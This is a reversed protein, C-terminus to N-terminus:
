NKKNKDRKNKKKTTYKVTTTTTTPYYSTTSYGVTTYPETTTDMKYPDETTPPPPQTPYSGGGNQAEQEQKLCVNEMRDLDAMLHDMRKQWAGLKPCDSLSDDALSATTFKECVGKLRELQDQNAMSGYKGKGGFEEVEQQLANFEEDVSFLDDGAQRRKRYPYGGGGTNKECKGTDLHHKADLLVKEIRHNYKSIKSSPPNCVLAKEMYYNCKVQANSIKKDLSMARSGDGPGADQALAVSFLAFLKM